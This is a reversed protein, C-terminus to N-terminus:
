DATYLYQVPDQRMETERFTQALSAMTDKIFLEWLKKGRKRAYIVEPEGKIGSLMGAMRVAYDIDGLDDVLKLKQAQRGTFVRGDAILKLEDKPIKRDHSVVEILQDGIDDVLQQLLKVEAPTMRRTPSGIDKFRGSKIVSAKFGIKKLLEEANALYMVASISGTLTGPNAVIKEAACSILYGGSAAVSGMSVVVRKKKRLDMIADYIEQSAAVGGGPSDVRIVVAKISDDKKIDSLQERTSQSEKIIGEVTVIGVREKAAFFDREGSLATIGLLFLFFSSVIILLLLIGLLVPHKRM